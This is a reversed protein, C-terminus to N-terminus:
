PRNSGALADGAAQTEADATRMAAFLRLIEAPEDHTSLLEQALLTLPEALRYSGAPLAELLSADALKELVRGTRDADSEILAAAVPATITTGSTLALRRFLRRGTADLLAYSSLLVSRVSLDGCVLQSLRTREDRLLRTLDAITWQPRVALRNGAVRLALPLRGCLEVLELSAPPEAALRHWGAIQGIMRLSESRGLRGLAFRRGADLGGLTNRSTVIVMSSGGGPLLPRVQAEGAADDLILLVSRSRILSRFLGVRAELTRPLHDGPADLLGLLVGLVEHPDRPVQELGRLSVFIQGDAFMEALRHGAHLAFSTKGAGPAGSVVVPDHGLDPTYGVWTLLQDLEAERGLFDAPAAPLPNAARKVVAKDPRAGGARAPRAAAHFARAEAGELGLAAVLADVTRRHPRGIRDRELDSVTRIGLKSRASLEEQTMGARRRAERLVVGLNETARQM